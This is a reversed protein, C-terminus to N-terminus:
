RQNVADSASRVDQQARELRKRTLVQYTAMEAEASSRRGLRTYANALLYHVRDNNPDAAAVQQFARIADDYRGSAAYARGVDFTAGMLKPHLQLAKELHPIAEDPKGQETYVRGLVYHALAHFPNRELEQRLWREADDYQKLNWYVNGIEYRLGPVDPRSALAAQYERLAAPYETRDEHQRGLLEHVRYSEPDIAVMSQLTSEAARQYDRGLVHLAEIDDRRQQLLRLALAEARDHDGSESYAQILWLNLWRSPTHRAAAELLSVAQRAKGSRLLALGQMAEDPHAPASASTLANLRAAARSIAATAEPTAGKQDLLQRLMRIAAAPDGHAASLGAIGVVAEVDHMSIPNESAGALDDGAPALAALSGALDPRLRVANRYEVRALDARNEAAFREAQLLSVVASGPQREGIREFVAGAAKDYSRTLQYLVEVDRPRLQRARRLEVLAERSKDLAAYCAGIWFRAEPEAMEPNLEISKLLHPIAQEFQATKYYDMGLFLHSGWLGADQQLARRFEVIAQPYLNQLHYTIGLSQRIAPLDPRLKLVERYQRAAAAYDKVREAQQAAALRSQIGGVSGVAGDASLSRSLLTLAMLASVRVAAEM